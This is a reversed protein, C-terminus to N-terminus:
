PISGWENEGYSGDLLFFLEFGEAENGCHDECGAMHPWGGASERACATLSGDCEGRADFEHDLHDAQSM